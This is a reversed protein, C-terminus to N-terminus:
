NIVMLVISVRGHSIRFGALREFGEFGAFTIRWLRLGIEVVIANVTVIQAREGSACSVCERGFGNFELLSGNAEM